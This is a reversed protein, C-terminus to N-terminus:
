SDREVEVVIGIMLMFNERAIAAEMAARTLGMAAPGAAPAGASNKLKFLRADRGIGAEM